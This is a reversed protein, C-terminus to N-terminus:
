PSLIPPIGCGLIATAAPLAAPRHPSYASASPGPAMGSCPSAGSWASPTAAIIGVPLTPGTLVPARGSSVIPFFSIRRPSGSERSQVAIRGDLDPKVCLDPSLDTEVDEHTTALLCGLQHRRALKSLNCALVRALTRDLTATFEDAILWGAHDPPRHQLRALALAIRFRYRQGDSLEAPTRLLLQAEGLGCASLLDLAPKVELPMADILPRDPLELTQIDILYQGAQQLHSCVARLLSSKGSGSPGTFLVIQGPHIDLQLQNCVVHEGADFQIGFADMVLSTALSRAKPPLPYRITIEM